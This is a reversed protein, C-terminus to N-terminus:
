ILFSEKKEKLKETYFPLYSTATKLIRWASYLMTGSITYVVGQLIIKEHPYISQKDLTDQNAVNFVYYTGASLLIAISTVTGFLIKTSCLVSKNQKIANEIQTELAQQESSTMRNNAVLSHHSQILASTRVEISNSIQHPLNLLKESAYEAYEIQSTITSSSDPRHSQIDM